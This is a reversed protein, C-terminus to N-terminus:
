LTEEYKRGIFYFIILSYHETGELGFSSYQALHITATNEALWDNVDVEIQFENTSSFIKCKM